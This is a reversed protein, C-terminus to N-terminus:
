EYRLILKVYDVTTDNHVVIDFYHPAETLLVFSNIEVAPLLIRVTKVLLEYPDGSWMASRFLTKRPGAFSFPAFGLHLFDNYDFGFKGDFRRRVRM